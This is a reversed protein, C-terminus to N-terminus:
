GTCVDITISSGQAQNGPPLSQSTVTGGTCGYNAQVIVNLKLASLTNGADTAAQGVVSPVKVLGSSVVIDILDGAQGEFGGNPTTSIVVGKKVSPSAQKSVEGVTLKKAKIAKEAAKLTMGSVDPIAVAPRGSSVYVTVVQKPSTKLGAEPTTRIIDGEAVTDSTEQVERPVLKLKELATAGDDYSKASVDPVTISSTPLPAVTLHLAWYGVGFIVALMVVVGAFIWAVPPRNQTRAVRADQDVSLQRFTADSGATVEPNVGFLTTEFGKAQPQKKVTVAGAAAAEVDQRFEAASQFRTFRDKSLGRLVVADLAPSVAPNIKSPPVPNQNVHQYAVAVPNDGRFPAQGTLM